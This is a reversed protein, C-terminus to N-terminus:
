DNIIFSKKIKENFTQSYIKNLISIIKQKNKEPKNKKISNPISLFLEAKIISM